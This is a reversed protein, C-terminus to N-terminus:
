RKNILDNKDSSGKSSGYFYAVVTTFSAILAGLVLNLETKYDGESTIMFVLTIFFGVVILAGLVYMFIEKTKKIM